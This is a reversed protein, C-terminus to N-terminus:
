ESAFFIISQTFSPRRVGSCAAAQMVRNQEQPTNLGARAARTSSCAARPPPDADEYIFAHAERQPDIRLGAERPSLARVFVPRQARGDNREGILEPRAVETLRPPSRRMQVVRKHSEKPRKFFHVYVQASLILRFRPRCRCVQESNQFITARLM